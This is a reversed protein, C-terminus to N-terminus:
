WWRCHSRDRGRSRTRAGRGPFYWLKKGTRPYLHDSEAVSMTEVVWAPFLHLMEDRDFFLKQDAFPMRFPRRVTLDTTMMEVDIDRLRKLRGM